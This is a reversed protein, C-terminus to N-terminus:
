ESPFEMPTGTSEYDTTDGTQIQDRRRLTGSSVGWTELLWSLVLPELPPARTLMRSGHGVSEYIALHHHGMAESDLLLCTRASYADESSVALLLPREGYDSTKGTLDIGKFDLGPSLLVLNHITEDEAAVTLALNAGVSAGVFSVQEVGRDRFWSVAVAVDSVMAGYEAHNLEEAVRGEPVNRGHGRLDLALTHFGARNVKGSLYRWDAASRGVMHLFIVGRTSDAAQYDGHIALGPTVQIRVEEVEAQAIPSALLLFLALIRKM